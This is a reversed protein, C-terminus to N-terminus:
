LLEAEREIRNKYDKHAYCADVKEKTTGDIAGYQSEHVKIMREACMEAKYHLATEIDKFIGESVAHDAWANYDLIGYELAKIEYNELM